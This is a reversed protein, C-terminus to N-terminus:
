TVEENDLLTVEGTRAEELQANLTSILGDAYDKFDDTYAVLKMSKIKYIENRIVHEYFIQQYINLKMKERVKGDASTM